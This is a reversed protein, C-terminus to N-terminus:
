KKIKLFNDWYMEQTMNEYHIIFYRFQYIQIQCIIVLTVILIQLMNKRLVYQVSNKLLLALPIFLM